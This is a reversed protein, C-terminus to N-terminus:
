QQLKISKFICIYMESVCDSHNQQANLAYQKGSFLKHCGDLSVHCSRYHPFSELNAIEDKHKLAISSHAVKFIIAITHNCIRKVFIHNKADAWFKILITRQHFQM